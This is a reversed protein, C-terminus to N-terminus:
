AAEEEEAEAAGAGQLDEWAARLHTVATKKGEAFVAALRLVKVVSRLAGPRKAIEELCKLEAEGTVGFAKAIAHVDGSKPRTLVLRKGIRSYFQAFGNKGGGYIRDFVSANGLLALGVETADQIARAAELAGKSLHQAEDIIILGGTNSIRDIIARHLTAPHPAVKNLGLVIAIEQLLVTASALAPAGTVVWVNTNLSQYRRIASTKGSGAGGYALTIDAMVQAYGLAAYIAKATPTEIWRPASPVVSAMKEGETRRRMWAAIKQAVADNDGGYSANLFQSLVSTSIGAGRAVTAQVLGENDILLRVRERLTAVTIPTEPSIQSM